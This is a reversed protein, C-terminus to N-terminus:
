LILLKRMKLLDLSKAICSWLPKRSLLSTGGHSAIRFRIGFYSITTGCDQTVAIKNWLPLLEAVEKKLPNPQLLTTVYFNINCGHLEVTSETCDRQEM